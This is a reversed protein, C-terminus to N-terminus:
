KGLSLLAAVGIVAFVMRLVFPTLKMSGSSSPPAKIPGHGGTESNSSVARSVPPRYSSLIPASASASLIPKSASLISPQSVSLIPESASSIITPTLRSRSSPEPFPLVTSQYSSSPSRSPVASQAAPPEPIGNAGGAPGELVRHSGEGCIRDFHGLLEAYGRKRLEHSFLAVCKPNFRNRVLVATMSAELHMCCRASVVMAAAGGGGGGRGMIPSSSALAGGCSDEIGRFDLNGFACVGGGGGDGDVEAGEEDRKGIESVWSAESMADSGALLSLSLLCVFAALKGVVKMKMKMKTAKAKPGKPTRKAPTLMSPSDEFQPEPGRKRKETISLKKMKSRILKTESGSSEPGSSTGQDSAYVVKKKGKLQEALKMAPGLNTEIRDLFTRTRLALHMQMKKDMEALREEEKRAKEMKKRAKKERAARDAAEKKRTEEAELRLREEEAKKAMETEVFTTITALSKSLEQIQNQVAPDISPSPRQQAHDPVPSVSRGRRPDPSTSPRYDAALWRRKCQNAYHGREHCAFCRPPSRRFHRDRGRDDAGGYDDRRTESRDFNRRDNSRRPYGQREYDKGDDDRRNSM